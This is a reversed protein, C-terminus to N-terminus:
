RPVPSVQSGLFVLAFFVIWLLPWLAVLWLCGIAIGSSRQGTGGYERAWDADSKLLYLIAEIWAIFGPIGTWFFVLYLM